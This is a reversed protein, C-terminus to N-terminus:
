RNRVLEHVASCNLIYEQGSLGIKGNGTSHYSTVAPKGKFTRILWRLVSNSNALPDIRQFIRELNLDMELSPDDDSLVIHHREPVEAKTVSDLVSGTKDLSWKKTESTLYILKDTDFILLPKIRDCNYRKTTVIDAFIITFRDDYVRGWDWFEITDMAPFNLWNHDRYGIGNIEWTEKGKRFTGKAEGRPQPVVWHMCKSEDGFCSHSKIGPIRNELELELFTDDEKIHVQCSSLDGRFYNNNIKVDCVEESAKFSPPPFWKELTNERGDATVHTVRVGNRLQSPQLLHRGIFFQGRVLSGDHNMIDYYWWEVYFRGKQLHWADDSETLIFPEAHEKYTKEEMIVNM